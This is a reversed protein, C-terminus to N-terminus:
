NFLHHTTTPPPNNETGESMFILLNCLNYNLIGM